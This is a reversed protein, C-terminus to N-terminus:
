LFDKVLMIVLVILIANLLHVINLIDERIHQIHWKIQHEQPPAYKDNRELEEFFRNRGTYGKVVLYFGIVWFTIVAVIIIILEIAWEPM